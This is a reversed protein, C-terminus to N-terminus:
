LALNSKLFVLKNFENTLSEKYPNKPKERQRETERERKRERVCVRVKKSERERERETEKVNKKELECGRKRWGERERM